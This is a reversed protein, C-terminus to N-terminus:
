LWRLKFAMADEETEFYIEGGIENNALMKWRDHDYEKGFNEICWDRMEEYQEPKVLCRFNIDIM